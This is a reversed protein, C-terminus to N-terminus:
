KKKDIKDTVLAYSGKLFSYVFNTKQTSAELYFPIFLTDIPSQKSIKISENQYTNGLYILKGNQLNRKLM